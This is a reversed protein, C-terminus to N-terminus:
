LRVGRAVTPRQKRTWAARIEVHYVFDIKIASQPVSAGYEMLNAEDGSSGGEKGM